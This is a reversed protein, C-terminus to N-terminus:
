HVIHAAQKGIPTILGHIQPMLKHALLGCFASPWLNSICDNVRSIMPLKSMYLLDIYLLRAKVAVPTQMIDAMCNKCDTNLLKLMLKSMLIHYACSLHQKALCPVKRM